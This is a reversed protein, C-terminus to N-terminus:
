IDSDFMAKSLVSLDECADVRINVINLLQVCPIKKTHSILDRNNGLTTHIRFVDGFRIVSLM